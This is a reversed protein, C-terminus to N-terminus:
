IDGLDYGGKIAARYLFFLAIRAGFIGLMLLLLTQDDTDISNEALESMTETTKSAQSFSSGEENWPSFSDYM